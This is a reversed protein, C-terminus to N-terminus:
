MSAPFNPSGTMSGVLQLEFGSVTHHMWIYMILVVAISILLATTVQSGEILASLHAQQAFIKLPSVTQPAERCM